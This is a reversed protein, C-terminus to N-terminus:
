AEVIVSVAVVFWRGAGGEDARGVLERTLGRDDAAVIRWEDVLASVVQAEADRRVQAEALRADLLEEVAQGEAVRAAERADVDAGVVRARPAVM